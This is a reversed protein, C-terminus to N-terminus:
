LPEMEIFDKYLYELKQLGDLISYPLEKAFIDLVIVANAGADKDSISRLRQAMGINVIQIGEYAKSLDNMYWDVSKGNKYRFFQGLLYSSASRYITEDITAFPLHFRVMPRLINMSPCGSTVMLIGLMSSLGKQVSTNLEYTREKSEVRVTVNEYSVKDKFPPFINTLNQAIPCHSHTSSNLKCNDCKHHELETWSPPNQDENQIFDLTEPNLLITFIERTNNEFIFEYKIKLDKQKNEM